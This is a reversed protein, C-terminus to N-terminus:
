VIQSVLYTLDASSLYDCYVLKTITFFLELIQPRSLLTPRSNTIHQYHTPLTDTAQPGVPPQCNASLNGVTSIHFGNNVIALLERLTQFLHTSCTMSIFGGQTTEKGNCSRFTEKMLTSSYGRSNIGRSLSTKDSSISDLKLTLICSCFWLM